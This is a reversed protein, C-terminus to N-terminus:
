LVLQRMSSRERFRALAIALMRSYHWIDRQQQEAGLLLEEYALTLATALLRRSGRPNIPKKKPFM